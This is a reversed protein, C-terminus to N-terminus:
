PRRRRPEAPPAPASGADSMARGIPRGGSRGLRASRSRLGGAAPRRALGLGLGLVQRELEVQGAEIAQDLGSRRRARRRDALRRRGVRRRHEIAEVIRAAVRQLRREGVLLEVVHRRAQDVEIEAAGASAGPSIWLRAGLSRARAPSSTEPRVSSRDVPSATAAPAGASKASTPGPRGRPRGRRRRALRRAVLVDLDDARQPDADREEVDVQVLGVLQRAAQHGLDGLPRHLQVPRDAFHRDREGVREGAARRRDAEGIERMQRARELVRERARLDDAVAGVLLRAQEDVGGLLDAAQQVLEGGAEQVCGDGSSSARRASCSSLEASRRSAAM